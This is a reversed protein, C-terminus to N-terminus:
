VEEDFKLLFDEGQVPKGDEGLISIRLDGCVSVTKLTLVEGSLYQELFSNKAEDFFTEDQLFASLDKGQEGVATGDQKETM